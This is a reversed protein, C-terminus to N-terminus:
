GVMLGHVVLTGLMVDMGEQLAALIEEEDEVPRGGIEVSLNGEIACQTLERALQDRTRTGDARLLLEKQARGWKCRTTRSRRSSPANARRCGRWRVPSPLEGLETAFRGSSARPLLLDAVMCEVLIRGVDDRVERGSLSAVRAAHAVLDEFSVARPWADELKQLVAREPVGSVQISAGWVTFKHKSPGEEDTASVEAMPAAMFLGELSSSDLRRVPEKDGHCLLTRRFMRNKVFDLYQEYHVQDPAIRDLTEQVDSNMWRANMESLEVEGLYELGAARAREVFQYFYLPENCEELHEHFLYSDSHRTIRSVEDKILRGYTSDQGDTAKALFNLLARSQTVREETTEFRDAHFNMMERVGARVHWGPMTNYSVYAVGDPSLNESCIQLIKDQVEPPVWSFVGHCIVYDFLGDDPGVDLISRHQLAINTLGLEEVCAQGEDIQVRSLDVGVFTAEPLGVAM